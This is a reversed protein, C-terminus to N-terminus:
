YLERIIKYIFKIKQVPLKELLRITKDILNNKDLIHSFQFLDEFTANLNAALKELTEISPYNKGNEIRSLHKPDIGVMEALKDQTFGNRERFEKIRLGLAQKTTPM